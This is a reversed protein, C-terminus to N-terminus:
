ILPIDTLLKERAILWDTVYCKKEKRQQFPTEDFRFMFSLWLYDLEANHMQSNKLLFFLDVFYFSEINFSSQHHYHRYADFVNRVNEKTKDQQNCSAAINRKLM